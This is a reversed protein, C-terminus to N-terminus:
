MSIFNFYSFIYLLRNGFERVLRQIRDCLFVSTQLVSSHVATNATSPLVLWDVVQFSACLSWSLIYVYICKQPRHNQIDVVKLSKFQDTYERTMFCVNTTLVFSHAATKATAPLVVQKLVWFSLCMILSLSLVFCNEQVTIKFEVIPSLMFTITHWASLDLTWLMSNELRRALFLYKSINFFIM